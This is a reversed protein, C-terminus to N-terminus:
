VPILDKKIVTLIFLSRFMFPENTILNITKKRRRNVKKNLNASVEWAADMVTRSLTMPRTM